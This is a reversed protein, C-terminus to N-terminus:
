FSNKDHESGLMIDVVKPRLKARISLAQYIKPLSLLFINKSLFVFPISKFAFGSRVRAIYNVVLQAYIFKRLKKNEDFLFMVNNEQIKYVSMRGSISATMAGSGPNYRYGALYENLFCGVGSKLCLMAIQWEMFPVIVKNLDLAVRRYLFSSHIAIPGSAALFAQSFDWQAKEPHLLGTRMVLRRDDSFYEAAHFVLNVDQREDMIATQKTFKDKFVLDDGDFHAVYQGKAERHAKLYNLNAGINKDNKIHRVLLPYQNVFVDVLDGTKDTSCDNAVIIECPQNPLNEIIANLCDEIYKEQNYTSVVVTLYIFSM